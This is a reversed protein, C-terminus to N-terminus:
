SIKFKRRIAMATLYILVASAITQLTALARVAISYIDGGSGLLQNRWTNQSDGFVGIPFTRSLSYSLGQTLANVDPPAMAPPSQIAAYLIAFLLTLGLLCALPRVISLGYDASFGYIWSLGAETQGIERRKSRATLESRHWFHESQVDGKSAAINRLNRCGAEVNRAHDSRVDVGDIAEYSTLEKNLANRWEEQNHQGLVLLGEFDADRFLQIPPPAKSKFATVSRFRSESATATLYGSSPWSVDAFAVRGKFDCRILDFIRGFGTDTVSFDGEISCRYFEMGNPFETLSLDLSRFHCDRAHFRYIECGEIKVSGINSDNM